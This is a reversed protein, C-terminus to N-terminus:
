ERLHERTARACFLQESIGLDRWLKSGRRSSPDITV